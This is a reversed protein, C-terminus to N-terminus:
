RPIVPLTIRSPYEASHYIRQTAPITEASLGFDKGTNPNRDYRDFNSSSVEVRIRHGAKVVYSTAWLDLVYEYVKGPEIPSRLDVGDRFSARIIGEQVLHTSGDPSVDVLAVTFDTDPASSSAYLTASIPGTIEVDESLAATTYVLVDDRQEVTARDRMKEALSWYDVGTAYQVPDQPDYTYGDPAEDGPPIPSLSGDGQVTNAAGNSHLYYNTYQTRALPWEGELRWDNDGVVFIHVKPETTLETEMGKLCYDFFAQRVDWQTTASKDGIDSQGIRHTEDTTSEHDWPGLVLWQPAASPSTSRASRIEQWDHITGNLFVDYWGGLHLIPISIQDYWGNLNIRDWPGGGYPNTALRKYNYSPIGAADDMAILPLHWHDLRLANQYTRSDMGIAWDGMLQLDFAGQRFASSYVDMNINAPAICKLNPHQSVAAAWTTYGYYSEGMVGVNGDSWPQKAAWDVTDYGDAVENEFPEFSGESTFKGRVDQIVAAYGKKAWFKGIAPMRCYYEDKGYPLRIVIVPFRGEAQPRYVNAYLRVGDRMVIPVDEEIVVEAYRDPTGSDITASPLRVYKDYLDKVTSVQWLVDAVLNTTLAAVVAVALLALLVIARGLWKKKAM